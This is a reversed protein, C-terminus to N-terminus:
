LWIRIAALQVFALYSAALKDYRTAIRRYEKLKGVLREVVNRERYLDWDMLRPTKETKLQPIVAGVGHRRLHDRVPRGTYGRDGVVTRPRLKPRGRGAPRRVAGRTMLEPFATQEHREGPTLVFVMPRGRRDCRLHLKSGFGGRSRGLAQRHQGRKRRRRLPAGAREHRGGHARGLRHRRCRGHHPAARRPPPGVAGGQDLPPEPAVSGLTAVTRWPSFREPLDRWPAGTRGLWLLADVITRHDKPPRGKRPRPPLLPALRLWERDTLGHRAM